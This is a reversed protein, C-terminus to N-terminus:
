QKSVSRKQIKKETESLNIVHMLDNALYSAHYNRKRAFKQNSEPHGETALLPKTPVPLYSIFNKGRLKDEFTEIGDNTKKPSGLERNSKEQAIKEVSGAFFYIAKSKKLSIPAGEM